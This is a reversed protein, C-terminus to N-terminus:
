FYIRFEIIRPIKCRPGETEKFDVRPGSKASLSRRNEFNIRFIARAVESIIFVSIIFLDM